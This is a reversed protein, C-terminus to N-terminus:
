HAVAMHKLQMETVHECHMIADDMKDANHVDLTASELSLNVDKSDGLIDGSIQPTGEPAQTPADSASLPRFNRLSVSLDACIEGFDQGPVVPSEAPGLRGLLRLM